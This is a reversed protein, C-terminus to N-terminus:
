NTTSRRCHSRAVAAAPRSRPGAPAFRPGYRPAHAQVLGQRLCRRFEEPNEHFRKSIKHYIPDMRLALDTTFMIPAHSKKPDHADPVTGKAAPNTPTWQWAGAPSKVLDWDYGFLNDFYGM